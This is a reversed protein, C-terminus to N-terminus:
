TYLLCRDEEDVLEKASRKRTKRREVISFGHHHAVISAYTSFSSMEVGRPLALSEGTRESGRTLSLQAKGLKWSTLRMCGGCGPSTRASQCKGTKREEYVGVGSEVRLVVV